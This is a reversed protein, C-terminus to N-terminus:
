GCPDTYGIVDGSYLLFVDPSKGAAILNRPGVSGADALTKEHVHGGPRTTPASQAQTSLAMVGSAAVVALVRWVPISKRRM